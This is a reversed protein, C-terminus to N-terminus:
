IASCVPLDPPFRFTPQKARFNSLSGDPRDVNVVTLRGHRVDVGGALRTM